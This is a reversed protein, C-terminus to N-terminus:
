KQRPDFRFRYAVALRFGNIRVEAPRAIRAQVEAIQRKAGLVSQM